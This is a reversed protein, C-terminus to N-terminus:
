ACMYAVLHEGVLVYALVCVYVFVCMCVRVCVRVCVFVCVCVPWSWMSACASVSLHVNLKVLRSPWMEASGFFSPVPICARSSSM